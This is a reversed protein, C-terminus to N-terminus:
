SSGGNCVAMLIGTGFAMCLLISPAISQAPVLEIGVPADSGSVTPRVPNVVVAQWEFAQDLTM